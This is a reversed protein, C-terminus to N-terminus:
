FDRESVGNLGSRPMEQEGLALFLLFIRLVDGRTQSKGKLTAAFKKSCEKPTKIYFTELSFRCLWRWIAAPFRGFFIVLFWGWRKRVKEGTKAQKRDNQVKEIRKASKSRDTESRKKATRKRVKECWEGTKASKRVMRRSGNLPQWKSEGSVTAM